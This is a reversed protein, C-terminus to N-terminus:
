SMDARKKQEEPIYEMIDEVRCNLLRCLKDITRADLGGTHNKLKQLISPSVGNKRLYNENKSRRKLTDYLKDYVITM